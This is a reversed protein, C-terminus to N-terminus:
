ASEMLALGAIGACYITVTNIGDLVPVVYKPNQWGSKNFIDILCKSMEAISGTIEPIYEDADDELRFIGLLTLVLHILGYLSTIGRGWKGSKDIHAGKWCFIGDVAVGAGFYAWKVIDWKTVPEKKTATLWPASFAYWLLGFGYAVTDLIGAKENKKEECAEMDLIITCGFHVTGTIFALICFVQRAGLSIETSEVEDIKQQNFVSSFYSVFQAVEEDTNFPAAGFVLKHLTTVPVATVFSSVNLITLDDGTIFRYFSSFFPVSIKETFLKSVLDFLTKIIDFVASIVAEVSDLVLCILGEIAKLLAAFLNTFFGDISSFASKFYEGADEFASSTEMDEAYKKLIDMIDNIEAQYLSLDVMSVLRTGSVDDSQLKRMLCDNSFTEEGQPNSPTNDQAYKMISEGPAINECAKDIIGTISGQLETIFGLLTDRLDNTKDPFKQLFITFCGSIARQTRKVDNWQFLAALWAFLVVFFVLVAAVVSESFDLVISITEIIADFVREVGNIVYKVVCEVGNVIIEVVGVIKKVVARFFDGIDTLWSNAGAGTVDTRLMNMRAAAEEGTLSTYVAKGDKFSLSWSPLVTDNRITRIQKYEDKKVIYVGRCTPCDNVTGHLKMMDNVANALSKANEENRYQDALLNGQGTGMSDTTKANLIDTDTIANFNATVTEYQNFVLSEDTKLMNEPLSAFVPSADIKGTYQVFYIKGSGKTNLRIKHEKDSLQLGQETELYVREETWIDVDINPLPADYEPHLFTIETSYCPMRRVEGPKVVELLTETWNKTDNNYDLKNIIQEEIQYYCLSIAEHNPSFALASVAGDVPFPTDSSYGDANQYVKAHLINAGKIAVHYTDNINNVAFASYEEGGDIVKVIRAKNGEINLVGIYNGSCLCFLKEGCLSVQKVTTYAVPMELDFVEMDKKELSYRVYKQAFDHVCLSNRSEGSVIFEGPSFSRPIMYDYRDGAIQCSVYFSDDKTVSSIAFLAFGETINKIFIKDISKFDKPLTIPLQQEKLFKGSRPAAEHVYYVANERIVFAYLSGDASLGAAMGAGYLGISIGSLSAIKTGLIYYVLGQGDYNAVIIDNDEKDRLACLETIDKGKINLAFSQDEAVDLNEMLKTYAKMRFMENVKVTKIAQMLIGRVLEFKFHSNVNSLAEGRGANGIGYAHRHRSLGGV